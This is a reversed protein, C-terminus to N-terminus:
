CCGKSGEAPDCPLTVAASVTYSGNVTECMVSRGRVPGCYGPGLNMVRKVKGISDLGM